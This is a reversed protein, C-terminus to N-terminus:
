TTLRHQEHLAEVDPWPDPGYGNLGADAVVALVEDRLSPAIQDIWGSVLVDPSRGVSRERAMVSLEGVRRDFDASRPLGTSEMLGGLVSAPDAVASEYAILPTRSPDTDRLLSRVEVAWAAAHRAAESDRGDLLERILAAQTTSTAAWMAAASKRRWSVSLMSQVVACPHRVVVVFDSRPFTQELWWASHNLQVHKLVFRRATLLEPVDTLKMSWRTVTGGRMALELHAKLTPASGGIPIAPEPGLGIGDIVATSGLPEFIACIGDGASIMGQVWTTGSRRSGLVTVTDAVDYHAHALRSALSVPGRTVYRSV